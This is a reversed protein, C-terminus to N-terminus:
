KNKVVVALLIVLILAGILMQTGSLPFKNDDTGGTTNTQSAHQNMHVETSPEQVVFSDDFSLTKFNKKDNGFWYSVRFTTVYTGIESGVAHVEIVANQGPELTYTGEVEGAGGMLINDSSHILINTPVHAAVVVHMKKDNLAPNSVYGAVIADNNVTVKSQATQFSITPGIPEAVSTADDESVSNDNNDVTVSKPHQATNITQNNNVVVTPAVATTTTAETTTDQATDDTCNATDVVTANDNTSTNDDDALAFPVFALVLMAILMYLITHNFKTM